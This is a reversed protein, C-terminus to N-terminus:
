KKKVREGRLKFDDWEGTDDFSGVGVQGAEFTKDKATMVPKKMDDFYVAITGDSVRRMIKVQHWEDDWNTGPTTKTSIKKRPAGNVIFIQNAHDDMKKGLHVYYFHAAHQYGFFLCVDRHPYDRATSRVKVELVFDSVSVDKVLSFNLPSRHPPKYNSQQFQSYVKGRKTEVIKWAKPDTPQWRDAGNEFDDQFVLPLATADPGDAAALTTFALFTAAIWGNRM